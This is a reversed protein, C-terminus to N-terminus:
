ELLSRKVNWKLGTMRLVLVIVEEIGDFANAERDSASWAVDGIGAIGDGDDLGGGM